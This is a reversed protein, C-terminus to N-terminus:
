KMLGEYFDLHLQAVNKWDRSVLYDRSNDLLDDEVDKNPNTIFNEIENLDDSLYVSKGLSDDTYKGRQSIVICGNAMAALMSGRRDSAGDPFPLYAYKVESLLKSVENSSLNLIIKINSEKALKSISLYYDSFRDDVMGVLYFKIKNTNLKNVLSIYKEIGKDPRILGFSVVSNSRVGTIEKSTPINSGIPIIKNFGKIGFAKKEFQNTFIFKLGPRLKFILMSLRRLIHRESYEHITFVIKGWYLFCFIQPMISKGYGITPYQFHVIDFNSKYVLLLLETWTSEGINFVTLSIKSRILYDHLLKTYDGVGCVSPPYSGTVLLVNM